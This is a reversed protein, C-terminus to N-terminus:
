LEGTKRCLTIRSFANAGARRSGKTLIEACSSSLLFKVTQVHGNASALALPNSLKKGEKTELSALVQEKASGLGLLLAVSVVSGKAAALSLPMLGSKSKQMAMESSSSLNLLRDQTLLDNKEIAHFLANKGEADAVMAIESAGPGNLIDQIVERDDARIAAHLEGAKQAILAQTSNENAVGTSTAATPLQRPVSAHSDPASPWVVRILPRQAITRM